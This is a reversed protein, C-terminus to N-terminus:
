FRGGGSRGRSGGFSSPSFGSRSRSGGGGFGGGRSIGGSGGWGSGGSRRSGGSLSSSIIGGLIGGMIDSGLGGGQPAQYSTLDREAYQIAQVALDHSRTAYSLAQAPDSQQLAIAQQLAADAEALRTRTTAGMAGRRTTIYDNAARIQTQAQLLKQSLQAAARRTQEAADRVQALVSDIATNAEDLSTFVSQPDRPTAALQARAQDVRTRTSAAVAALQGTPDPLTSAAALDGELDTLLAAANQEVAALDTGLSEIAGLLQGTQAVAEEATRIAFAAPGTEGAALATGAETIHADALALRDRAQAPNDAVTALAGPTFRAALASMAQPAAALRADLAQRQSRVTELAQPANKELERLREFAEANDDLLDEAQQCLQIIQSHWARRQEATDPIEDDLQQKIAFAEAVKSKAAEVTATFTATADDGFQATAFGLEERSATIADDAQVLASGAQRELEEDSPGQAAATVAGKKKRSRLVLWIVLVVVAAILVIVWLTGGGSSPAAAPNSGEGTPTTPLPASVGAASRMASVATAIAGSWDDNGLDSQVAREIDTLQADSLEGATHASLYYARGETAVALLYQHPGLNNGDFVANAWDAADQPNTFYDVYVVFLNMGTEDYLAALQDGAASKQAASLVGAADTVYGAELAGPDTASAPASVAGAAIIGMVLAVILTWRARM